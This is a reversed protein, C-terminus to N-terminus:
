VKQLRTSPKSSKGNITVICYYYGAKTASYTQETAGVIISSSGTKSTSYYWQNGIVSSSVVVLIASITPTKPIPVQTTTTTTPALTTTTTTPALTTTTTPVLTTTTTTPALTTTTTQALTTTTTTPVLTSKYESIGIDTKVGQPRVNNFYDFNINVLPNVDGADILPSGNVLIFDTADHMNASSFGANSGNPQFYNNTLTVNNVGFYNNVYSNQVGPNIIVNNSILNGVNLNSAFRIGDSKSNIINNNFIFYSKNAEISQNSIFMGHKPLGQNGPNYTLGANVIINNFIRADGLGLYDIGDGKGDAIYNNYVNAKTGNGLIIGSMQSDQGAQSDFRVINNYVNCNNSASSVQIGDWGTYEVINNYIQVGDLLSPYITSTGCALGISYKTSGIYMGENVTYGVYCDHIITNYQTFTERSAYGTCDPDTKAVIGSAKTNKISVHDIEIDSSLNGIDLGFLTGNVGDIKFGYNSGPVGTGTVKLYQCGRISIGYGITTNIIVDSNLNTIIIPNGPDGKFGKLGIYDRVGGQFQLTDGGKVQNYPSGSADLWNVNTPVIFISM